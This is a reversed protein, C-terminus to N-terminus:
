GNTKDASRMPPDLNGPDAEHGIEPEDPKDIQTLGRLRRIFGESILAAWGCWQGADEQGQTKEMFKM